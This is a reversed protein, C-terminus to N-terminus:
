GVSCVLLLGCGFTKAPGVGNELLQVLQNPERVRLIGQFIVPVIKGAKNGKRFYIPAQSVITSVEVEAAEAMKRALWARQEEERVLPVRCKASKKAMKSDAQNDIITKIPNATLVFALRQNKRPSPHIERSALVRVQSDSTPVNRSQVLIPVSETVNHNEVQFLFGNREEELNRRVESPQDPFVRWIQRHIEYANRAIEPRIVLRSLYM